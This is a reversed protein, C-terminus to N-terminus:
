STAERDQARHERLRPCLASRYTLRSVCEWGPGPRVVSWTCQCDQPIGFTPMEVHGAPQGSGPRLDLIRTRAKM